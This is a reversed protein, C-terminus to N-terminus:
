LWFCEFSKKSGVSFENAQRLIAKFVSNTLKTKM